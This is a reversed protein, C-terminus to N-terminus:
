FLKSSVSTTNIRKKRTKRALEPLDDVESADTGLQTAEVSGDITAILEQSDAGHAEASRAESDAPNEVELKRRKVGVRGSSSVRLTTSSFSNPNGGLRAKVKKLQRQASNNDDGPRKSSSM